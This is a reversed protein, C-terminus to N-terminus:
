AIPKHEARPFTAAAAAHPISELDRKSTSAGNSSQFHYHWHQQGILILQIEAEV